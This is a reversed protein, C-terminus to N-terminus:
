EELLNMSCGILLTKFQADPLSSAEMKNQEKELTKNQEKMQPMNRQRRMKGGERYQKQMNSLAAEGGLRPLTAKQLLHETPGLPVTEGTM